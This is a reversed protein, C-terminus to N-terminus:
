DKVKLFTLTERLYAAQVVISLGMPTHVVREEFPMNMRDTQRQMSSAVGTIFLRNEITVAVPAGSDGGFVNYDVLFTKVSRVPVLPHSAITGKRLVPWGANNAELKAPYCAIWADLGVRVVRNELQSEEVIQDWRIPSVLTGDPLDVPLVAVDLEPHQLWLREESDRIRIPVLRRAYEGDGAQERVVLECSEGSMQELVHKATVLIVRNQNTSEIVEGSVFFGTGSHEGDTLRCTASLLNELPDDARAPSVLTWSVLFGIVLTTRANIM